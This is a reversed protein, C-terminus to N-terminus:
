QHRSEVFAAAMAAAQEPDNVDFTATPEQKVDKSEDGPAAQLAAIQSDKEALQAELDSVKQEAEMRANKEAEMTALAEDIVKMQEPTVSLNGDTETIAEVALLALVATYTKNMYTIPTKDETSEPETEVPVIPTPNLIAAVKAALRQVFSMGVEPEEELNPMPLGSASLVAKMESTLKIPQGISEGMEDALGLDIVEQATKWEAKQMLHAMEELTKGTRDAYLQAAMHDLTENFTLQRKLDKIYDKIEDQNMWDISIVPTSSQHILYQTYPSIVVKKAGMSIITAASAVVGELFCTVDGHERFAQMIKFGDSAVGGPSSIRANVPQGEYQQLIYKVESYSCEGFGIEGNLEIQYEM